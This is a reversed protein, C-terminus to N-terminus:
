AYNTGEQVLGGVTKWYHKDIYVDRLAKKLEVQNRVLLALHKKHAVVLKHMENADESCGHLRDSDRVAKHYEVSGEYERISNRNISILSQLIQPTM